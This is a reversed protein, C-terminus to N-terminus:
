GSSQIGLLGKIIEYMGRVEVADVTKEEVGAGKLEFLLKVKGQVNALVEDLTPVQAGDGAALACIKEFDLDRIKGSGSTTRDVTEDHM